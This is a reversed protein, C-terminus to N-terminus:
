VRFGLGQETFSDRHATGGCVCAARCHTELCLTAKRTQKPNPDLTQKVQATIIEEASFTTQGDADRRSLARLDPLM